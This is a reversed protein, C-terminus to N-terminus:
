NPQLVDEPVGGLPENKYVYLDFFQEFSMGTAKELVMQFDETAMRKGNWETLIARLVTIMKDYGLSQRLEHLLLPGRGYVTAIYRDGDRGTASLWLSMTKNTNKAARRNRWYKVYGEYGAPGNAAESFLAASYEAGMEMMWYDHDTQTAVVHAWWQHAIEHPLFAERLHADRFEYTDLLDQKDLYAFGDMQVMGPPAQAFGTGLPMQAIELEPFPYPIGYLKEYFQVIDHAQELIEKAGEYQGAQAYVRIHPRKGEAVDDQVVSFRGVIVSALSAPNSEQVTFEYHDGMDEQSVLTGSSAMVLPKPMSWHWDWTYRDWFNQYNQPYWAYTNLLSYTVVGMFTQNNQQADARGKLDMSEPDPQTMTDIILGEYIVRLEGEQGRPIPEPLEVLLRSKSHVFPLPNGESDLVFRVRLKEDGYSSILSFPAVHVERLISKFRVTVDGRLGWDKTDPDKFLEFDAVYHEIDFVSPDKYALERRSLNERDQKRAFHCLTDYKVDDKNFPNVRYRYLAVEEIDSSDYVYVINGQGKKVKELNMDIFMEDWVDIGEVHFYAASSDIDWAWVDLIEKWLSKAAGITKKDGSAPGADQKFRELYNPSLGIHAESFAQDLARQGTLRELEDAEIEMEPAMQFRGDGIYVLNFVEGDIDARPFFEGKVFTVTAGDLEVTLDQVTWSADVDLENFEEAGLVDYYFRDIEGFRKDEDVLGATIGTEEDDEGAGAALPPLVVTLAMLWTLKHLM